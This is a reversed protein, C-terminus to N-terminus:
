QGAGDLRETRGVALRAPGHGAHRPNLRLIGWKLARVHSAAAQGRLQYEEQISRMEEVAAEHTQWGEHQVLKLQREVEHTYDANAHDILDAVEDVGAYSVLFSGGAVAIAVCAFFVGIIPDDVVGRLMGISLGVLGAVAVSVLILMKITSSSTPESTFLQPFASRVEADPDVAQSRLARAHLDKIESGILGASVTAIAASIALAVAIAPIEGLWIAAASLGALDGLLFGAKALTAWKKSGKTRRRFPSLLRLVTQLRSRADSVLQYSEESIIDVHVALLGLRKAALRSSRAQVIGAAEWNQIQETGLEDYETEVHLNSVAKPPALASAEDAHQLILNTATEDLSNGIKLPALKSTVASHARGM